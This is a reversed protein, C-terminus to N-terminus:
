LAAAEVLVAQQRLGGFRPPGASVRAVGNRVDPLAVSRDADRLGVPAAVLRTPAALGVLRASRRQSARSAQKPSCARRVGVSSPM